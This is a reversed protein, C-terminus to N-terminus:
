ASEILRAGLEQAKQCDQPFVEAKRKAKAEADWGTSLYKSYDDFQYTDTSILQECSGLFNSIFMRTRDLHVGYNLQGMLQESVNMTYIMATPIKKPFLSDYNPTYTLYPFILRELFSRMEGTEAGFYIPTGFLLADYQEIDKLIPTLGDKMACTGYHKGGLKKCQFCSTCGKYDLSYLHFLECEGGANKAGELAQNLLTATNGNKRPSGNFAAIKM